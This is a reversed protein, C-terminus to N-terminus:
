TITSCGSSARAFCRRTARSALVDEGGGQRITRATARQCHGADATVICGDQTFLALFEPLADIENSKGDVAVLRGRGSCAIREARAAGYRALVGRLGRSRAASVDALRLTRSFRDPSPIGCPLWLFRRLLSEKSRGFLAADVRTEAGSVMALRVVMGVEDLEHRQANGRRPDVLDAFCAPFGAM